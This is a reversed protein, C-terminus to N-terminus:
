WEVNGFVCVRECICVERKDCRDYHRGTIQPGVDTQSIDMGDLHVGVPKSRRGLPLHFKHPLWFFM